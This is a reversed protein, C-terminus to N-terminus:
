NEMHIPVLRLETNLGKGPLLDSGSEMEHGNFSHNGPHWETLIEIHAGLWDKFPIGDEQVWAHMALLAVIIVLVIWLSRRWFHVQRDRFLSRKRWRREFKAIEDKKM